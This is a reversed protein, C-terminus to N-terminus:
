VPQRALGRWRRRDRLWKGSAHPDPEPRYHHGPAARRVGHRRGADSRSGENRRHHDVRRCAPGREYGGGGQPVFDFAGPERGAFRDPDFKAAGAWVDPDHHMGYVDVLALTGKRFRHGRWEFDDAVVAGIAPIFPYFRRVEQVFLEAEEGNGARICERWHPYDHLALAAFTIFTGIAVVPRLLNLVEVAATRRDLLAGDIDRQYAFVGIASGDPPTLRGVRVEDVVRAIWGESRNRARRGRWYRPRLGGFGDIM